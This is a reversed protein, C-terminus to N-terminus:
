SPNVRNNFIQEYKEHNIEKEKYMRDDAEKMTQAISSNDHIHGVSWGISISLPLHNYKENYANTNKRVRKCADEVAKADSFPMIVGFEDGGLRIIIDSKRFSQTLIESVNVLLADGQDHGLNDNVIKLGDIDLSVVGVPNFGGKILSNTIDEMYTRNHLGTLQDHFSLYKLKEEIHKYETQDNFIIVTGDYKSSVDLMKHFKVLFTREGRSPSDVTKEVNMETESRGIFELYSDNLWPLVEKIGEPNNLTSYYLSGSSSRKKNVIQLAAYNMNICRHMSDIFFTPNPSSEFITLYKNKENTIELNKTQLQEIVTEKSHSTWEAIYSIENIDFFRNTMLRYTQLRQPDLNSEEWLDLYAQRYYKMLSLFMTISVGRDRHKKAEFVGFTSIIDTSFDYDVDIDPIKEDHLLAEVFATSLGSISMAWSEELTSTYKTYGLLKAYHLIRKMLFPQNNQLLKILEKM